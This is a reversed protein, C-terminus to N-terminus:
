AGSVGLVGQKPFAIPHGPHKKIDSPQTSRLSLQWRFRQFNGAFIGCIEAFNGCIGFHRLALMKLNEPNPSPGSPLTGSDFSM